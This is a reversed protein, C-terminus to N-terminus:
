YPALYDGLMYDALSITATVGPQMTFLLLLFCNFEAPSVFELLVTEIINAIYSIRRQRLHM